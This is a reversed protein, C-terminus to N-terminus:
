SITWNLPTNAAELFLFTPLEHDAVDYEAVARPVQVGDEENGLM